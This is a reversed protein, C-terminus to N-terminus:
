KNHSVREIPFSMCRPGGGSKLTEKLNLAIVEFGLASLQYNVDKAKAHSIITDNGINLLNCAHQFVQEKTVEILQFNKDKLYNMFDTSLAEPCVIALKEAIVNCIMDIHLFDKHFDVPILKIGTDQLALELEKIGIMDTRIGIGVAATQDDLYM